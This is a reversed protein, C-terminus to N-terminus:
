IRPSASSPLLASASAKRKYTLSVHAEQQKSRKLSKPLLTTRTLNFGFMGILMGLNSWTGPPPFKQFADFKSSAPSNEDGTIDVGVFQLIPLLFKSKNLKITACHHQLVSLIIRFYAFLSAVDNAYLLVDDVIVKSGYYGALSTLVSSSNRGHVSPHPFYVTSHSPKYPLIFCVAALPIPAL